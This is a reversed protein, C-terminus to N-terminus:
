LDHLKFNITQVTCVCFGRKCLVISRTTDHICVNLRNDFGNSLRSYRAYLRNDFRNYLRRSLRNYQTFPTFCVCLRDVAKGRSSFYNISIVNVKFNETVKVFVTKDGAAKLGWLRRRQKGRFSGDLLSWRRTTSLVTGRQWYVVILREVHGPWM